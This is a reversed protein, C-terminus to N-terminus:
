RYYKIYGVCQLFSQLFIIMFYSGNLSTQVDINRGFERGPLTGAVVDQGGAAKPPIGEM